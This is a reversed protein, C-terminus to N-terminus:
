KAPRGEGGKSRNLPPNHQAIKAREHARRTRSTSRGDAVMYEFTGQGGAGTPLKGSRVHERMRRNLDCTEGVYLLAGSQSRIRYEGPVSPPRSGQNTEPCYKFPRGPRYASM